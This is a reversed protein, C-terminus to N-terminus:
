RRGLRTAGAGLLCLGLLALTAPEPVSAVSVNDLLMGINDGGAGGFSLSVTMASDVSFLRTFTTFPDSKSLSFTESFIATEVLVAVSEAANNRQNGALDFSLVYDGPALAFTATITGANSTSGDLDIYLGNGPLFDFLGNGILDVTGDSVTWNAFGSYNLAGTGGNEGDFNDSFIIGANASAGLCLLATAAVVQVMHKRVRNESM